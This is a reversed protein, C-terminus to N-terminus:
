FITIGLALTLIDYIAILLSLIGTFLNIYKQPKKTGKVECLQVIGFIVFFATHIIQLVTM